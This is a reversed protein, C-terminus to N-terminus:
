DLKEWGSSGKVRNRIGELGFVERLNHGVRKVEHYQRRASRKASLGCCYLDRGTDSGMLTFALKTRYKQIGTERTEKTALAYGKWTNQKHKKILERLPRNATKDDTGSKCALALTTPKTLYSEAMEWATRDEENWKEGNPASGLAPLDVISLSTSRPTWVNICLVDRAVFSSKDSLTALRMLQTAQNIIKPLKSFDDMVMRYHYLIDKEVQPRSEHPRITAVIRHQRSSCRFTYEIPFEAAQYKTIPFHSKSIRELMVWKLITDPRNCCLVVQRPFEDDTERAQDLLYLFDSLM